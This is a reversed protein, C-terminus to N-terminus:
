NIREEVLCLGRSEQAVYHLLDPPDFIIGERGMLIEEYNKGEKGNVVVVSKDVVRAAYAVRRSDPSITFEGRKSSPDIKVSSTGGIPRESVIRENSM